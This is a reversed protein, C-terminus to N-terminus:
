RKKWLRYGELEDEGVPEVRILVPQWNRFGEEALPVHGMAMHLKKLDAQTPRDKFDDRYLRAHVESNEVVLVKVVTFKGSKGGSVSYIGGAQIATVAPTPTSTAVVPALPQTCGLLALALLLCLTKM